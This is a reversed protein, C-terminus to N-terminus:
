SIPTCPLSFLHYHVSCCHCASNLLTQTPPTFYCPFYLLHRSIYLLYISTMTHFPSCIPYRGAMPRIAFPMCRLSSPFLDHWQVSLWHCLVSLLICSTRVHAGQSPSCIIQEQCLLLCLLVLLQYPVMLPLGIPRQCALFPGGEQCIKVEEGAQGRRFSRLYLGCWWRRPCLQIKKEQGLGGLSFSQYLGCCWKRAYRFKKEQRYRRFSRMCLGCCSRKPM